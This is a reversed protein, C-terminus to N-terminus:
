GLDLDRMVDAPLKYQAARGLERRSRRKGVSPWPTTDKLEPMIEILQEVMFRAMRHTAANRTRELITVATRMVRVLKARFMVPSSAESANEELLESVPVNLIEKWRYLTSLPLDASEDEQAQVERVGIGLRRAITRRSVGEQRRVAGLRHFQQGSRQQGGAPTKDQSPSVLPLIRGDSVAVPGVVPGALAHFSSHLVSSM